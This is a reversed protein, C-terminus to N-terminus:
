TKWYNRAHLENKKTIQLLSFVNFINSCKKKNEEGKKRLLSYRNNYEFYKTFKKFSLGISFWSNNQQQFEQGDHM